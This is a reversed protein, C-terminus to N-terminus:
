RPPNIYVMGMIRMQIRFLNALVELGFVIHSDAVVPATDGGYAVVNKDPGARNDNTFYLDTVIDLNPGVRHHCLIHWVIRDNDSVWGVDYLQITFFYIHFKSNFSRVNILLM